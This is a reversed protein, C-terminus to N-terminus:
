TIGDNTYQYAKLIVSYKIEIKIVTKSKLYNLKWEFKRIINIYPETQDVGGRKIYNYGFM